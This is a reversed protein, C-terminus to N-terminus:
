GGCVPPLVLLTCSGILVQELSLLQTESAIASDCLLQQDSFEPFRRILEMQLEAKINKISAAKPLHVSFTSGEPTYKRLSGFFKIEVEIM